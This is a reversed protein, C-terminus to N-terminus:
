QKRTLPSGHSPSSTFSVDASPFSSMTRARDRFELDSLERTGYNSMTRSKRMELDSVSASLQSIEERLAGTTRRMLDGQTQLRRIVERELPEVDDGDEAEQEVGDGDQAEAVHKAARQAMALDYEERSIMGDNNVDVDDFAPLLVAAQNSPSVVTEKLMEKSAHGVSEPFSADQTEQALGGSEAAIILRSAQGSKAMAEEEPELSGMSTTARPDLQTNDGLASKVHRPQPPTETLAAGTKEVAQHHFAETQERADTIGMSQRLAGLVNQRATELASPSPPATPFPSSAAAAAAANSTQPAAQPSAQPLDARAIGKAFVAAALAERTKNKVLQLQEQDTDGASSSPPQKPSLRRAQEPDEASSQRLSRMLENRSVDDSTATELSLKLAERAKGRASDLRADKTTSGRMLRILDNRRKDDSSAGWLSQRLAEQAKGRATELQVEGEAPSVAQPPESAREVGEAAPSPLEIALDVGKTEGSLEDEDSLMGVEGEFNVKGSLAQLSRSLSDFELAPQEDQGDGTLMRLTAALSSDALRHKSWSQEIAARRGEPSMSALSTKSSARSSGLASGLADLAKMRVGEELGDEEDSSDNLLAKELAQRARQKTDEDDSSDDLLAIELADRARERTEEEDLEGGGLLAIELAERANERASEEDESCSLEDNDSLMANELAVRARERAEDEDVESSPGLSAKGPSYGSQEGPKEKTNDGLKVKSRDGPKVQKGWESPVEMAPPGSPKVNFIKALAKQFAGTHLGKLLDSSAKHRTEELKREEETPLSRDGPAESVDGQGAAGEATIGNERGDEGASKAAELEAQDGTLKRIFSRQLVSRLSDVEPDEAEAVEVEAGAAEGVEALESAPPLTKSVTEEEGRGRRQPHDFEVNPKEVLEIAKSRAAEEEEEKKRLEEAERKQKELEAAEEERKQREVEEQERKQREAEEQKQREAEEQEKRVREEEEKRAREAEEEKRLREAEEAAKRQREAEEAEEQKRKEEALRFSEAQRTSEEELVMKEREREVNALEFRTAKQTDEEALVMRERERKVSALEFKMAKQMNEEEVAMTERERLENALEEEKEKIDREAAASAERFQDSIFVFPDKPRERVVTQLLARIFTLLQHSELYEKASAAAHAFGPDQKETAPCTKPLMTARSASELDLLPPVSKKPPLPPPKATPARPSAFAIEPAEKFEDAPSPTSTGGDAEDFVTFRVKVPNDGVTNRLEASYNGSGPRLALRASGVPQLLDVRFPNVGNPGTAFRFAPSGRRGIAAAM